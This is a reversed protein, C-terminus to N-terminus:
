IRFDTHAQLGPGAGISPLAQLNLHLIVAGAKCRFRCLLRGSGEERRAVDPKTEPQGDAALNNLGVLAFKFDKARARTMGAHNPNRQREFCGRRERQLASRSRARLPPHARINSARAVSLGSRVLPTEM